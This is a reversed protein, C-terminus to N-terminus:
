NHVNGAEMPIEMALLLADDSFRRRCFSTVDDWVHGVMDELSLKKHSGIFGLLGAEALRKKSGTRGDVRSVNLLGDTHIFIRELHTFTFELREFNLGSRAGLAPGESSLRRVSGTTSNFLMLGSHGASVVEGRMAGLDLKVYLATAMRGFDFTDSFKDNLAKMLSEGAGPSGLYQDFLAKIFVTHYSAGLDHGAVDAVLAEVGGDVNRAEFYDGGLSGLPTYRYAVKVNLGEPNFKVIQNYSNVASEIQTRLYECDRKRLDAARTALSSSDPTERRTHRGELIWRINRLLEAMDVPKELFDDCGIRMLDIMMEKDGYGTIAMVPTYIGRRRMEWILERGNLGPMQVDTIILSYPLGISWSDVVKALAEAGDLSVSTQFGAMNLAVELSSALDPEDDVILIREMYHEIPILQIICGGDNLPANNM